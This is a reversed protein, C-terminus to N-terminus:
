VTRKTECALMSREPRGIGAQIRSALGPFQSGISHPSSSSPRSPGPARLVVVSDELAVLGGEFFSGQDESVIWALERAPTWKAVWNQQSGDTSSALAQVYLNGLADV